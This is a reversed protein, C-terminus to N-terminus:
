KPPFLPFRSDFKSVVKPSFQLFDVKEGLVGIKKHFQFKYNTGNSLANFNSYLHM